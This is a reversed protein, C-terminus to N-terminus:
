VANRFKTKLRFEAEIASTKVIGAFVHRDMLVGAKLDGAETITSGNGELGNIRMVSVFEGNGGAEQTASKTLLPTDLDADAETEATTGTGIRMQDYQGLLRDRYLNLGNTTAKGM